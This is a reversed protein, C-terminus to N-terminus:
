DLSGVASNTGGQGRNQDPASSLRKPDPWLHAVAMADFGVALELQECVDLLASEAGFPAVIQLGVPLGDLLGVPISAAPLGAVNFQPTFPFAGWLWDVRAGEIETPRLGVKFATVATAPTAILDFDRMFRAVRARLEKLEVRAAAVEQPTVKEGAALARAAYETLPARTQRLLHGRQEWEEALVLVRFVEAWGALPPTSDVVLHPGLQGLVEVARETIVRLRSDLPRADLTGCWAIRLGKPVPHRPYVRGTLAGLFPRADAARHVIPGPCAFESMAHFGEGAPVAGAGPKLGFLGCFASPIRISGGGDSGLAAAALGAGVSAAAGGSSGGATRTRDWPNLSPPGLLNDTTASQGFEATNTKGLFIAGAARLSRVAPSDTKAVDGTHALSGLTTRVGAVDFLDKISVPVGLLPAPLGRGYAREAEAAQSLAAEATITVYAGLDDNYTDIRELAERVIEVPSLSRHRYAQVLDELPWFLPGVPTM